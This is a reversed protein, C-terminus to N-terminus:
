PERDITDVFVDPLHVPVTVVNPAGGREAIRGAPNVTVVIEYDGSPVGTVDIWQGDLAAPYDDGWGPSLGQFDCTYGGSPGPGYALSDRICFAQKHGFAVAGAPGRLEYDAFDRFHFHGHCPSFEFDDASFPALPHVPDGIVLARTGRNVVIADFRLLRREGPAGVSGEAVSCDDAAFTRRQLTASAVIADRDVTLDVGGRRDGSDGCGLVVTLAVFLVIRTASELQRVRSPSTVLSM